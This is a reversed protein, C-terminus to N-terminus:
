TSERERGGGGEDQETLWMYILVKNTIHERGGGKGERGRGGEEGELETLWQAPTVGGRRGRGREGGENEGGLVALAEEAGSQGEVM